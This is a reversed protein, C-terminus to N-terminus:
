NQISNDSGNDSRRKSQGDKEEKDKQHTEANPNFIYASDQRPAPAGKVGCSIPALFVLIMWIKM